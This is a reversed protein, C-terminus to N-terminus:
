EKLSQSITFFKCLLSSHFSVLEDCIYISDKLTFFQIQNCAKLKIFTYRSSSPGTLLYLCVFAMLFYTLRIDRKNRLYVCFFLSFFLLCQPITGFRATIKSTRGLKLIRSALLNKLLHSFSFNFSRNM